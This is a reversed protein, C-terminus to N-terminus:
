AKAEEISAKRFEKGLAALKITAKRARTAAAKNGSGVWKGGDATFADIIELMEDYIVKSKSDM